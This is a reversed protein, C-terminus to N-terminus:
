KSETYFRYLYNPTWKKGYLTLKNKSNFLEAIEPFSGGRERYLKIETLLAKKRDSKFIVTEM